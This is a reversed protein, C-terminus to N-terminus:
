SATPGPRLGLICRVEAHPVGEGLTGEAKRRRYDAVALADELDEIVQPPVLLAAVHGQDALAIIERGDKVRRVLDDLESRAASIEIETM